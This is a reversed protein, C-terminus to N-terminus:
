EVLCGGVVADQVVAADGGGHEPHAAAVAHAEGVGAVLREGAGRGDGPQVAIELVVRTLLTPGTNSYTSWFPTSCVASSNGGGADVGIVVVPAPVSLRTAPPPEPGAWAVPFVPTIPPMASAIVGAFAACASFTGIVTACAASMTPAGM